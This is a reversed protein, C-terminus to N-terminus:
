KKMSKTWENRKISNTLWNKEGKQDNDKQNNNM